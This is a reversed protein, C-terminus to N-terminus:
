VSFQKRLEKYERWDRDEALLRLSEQPSENAVDRGYSIFCRKWGEEAIRLAKAIEPKVPLEVRNVIKDRYELITKIDDELCDDCVGGQIFDVKCVRCKGM